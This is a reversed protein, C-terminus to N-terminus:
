IKKWAQLGVANSFKMVLDSERQSLDQAEIFAQISNLAVELPVSSLLNHIDAQTISENKERRTPVTM